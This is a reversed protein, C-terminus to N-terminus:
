LLWCGYEFFLGVVWGWVLRCGLWYGCVLCAGMFLVGAVLVLVGARLWWASSCRCAWSEWAVRVPGARDVVGVGVVGVGELFFFRGAVSRDVPGERSVGSLYRGMEV